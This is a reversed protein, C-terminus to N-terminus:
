RAGKHLKSHERCVFVCPSGDCRSACGEIMCPREKARMIARKRAVAEVTPWCLQCFEESSYDGLTTSCLVCHRMPSRTWCALAALALAGVVHTVADAVGVEGVVARARGHSGRRAM